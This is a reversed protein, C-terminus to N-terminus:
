SKGSALKELWPNPRSGAPCCAERYHDYGRRKLYTEAPLFEDNRRRLHERLLHELHERLRASGPDHFRNDLQFPDEENDYLLNLGKPSRVYTYRETRVGRYEPLGQARFMGYPAHVNLFAADDPNPAEAGRIIGSFDRGEVTTPIPLGCLSLLTPMLDPADIPTPITRGTTGLGAPWRLLFPVRISEDWPVTKRLLGQSRHMDGHDSTFVFITDQELGTQTLTDRLKQVCDDIASIHGYYGALARAAEDRYAEPVNPRLELDEPRYLSRYPEPQRDYPDHPTGWSLMLFLPRENGAHARLYRCADETQALVDYGDWFRPEPDDGEFYPSKLYDHNCEFAKWYEFGQRYEPPIWARRRGHKGDPSGYLHWKGIYATDYGGAAFAQAMSIAERNLPVDNIFVGHTQPYRGTLLSARYPCCVPHGSVANEANVSTAALADLAPTRANPDGAYGTAQARMQDAFVFILNPRRSTNASSDTSM